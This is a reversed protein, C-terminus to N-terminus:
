VETTTERDDTFTMDDDLEPFSNVIGEYLEKGDTIIMGHEDLCWELVEFLESAKTMDRLRM